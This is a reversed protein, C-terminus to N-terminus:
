VHDHKRPFTSSVKDWLCPLGNWWQRKCPRDARVGLAQFAPILDSGSEWVNMLSPMKVLFWRKVAWVFIRGFFHKYAWCKTINQFYRCWISHHLSSQAKIWAFNGGSGDFVKIPYHHQGVKQPFHCFCCAEIVQTTSTLCHHCYCNNPTVAVQFTTSPQM